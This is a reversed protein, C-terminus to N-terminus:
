VKLYGEGKAWWGLAAVAALLLILDKNKDAKELSKSLADAADYVASAFTGAPVTAGGTIGAGGLAAAKNAAATLTTGGPIKSTFFSIVGKIVTEMAQSFGSAYPNADLVPAKMIDGAIGWAQAQANNQGQANSPALTVKFFNANAGNVTDNIYWLVPYPSPGIAVVAQEYVLLAAVDQPTITYQTSGSSKWNNIKPKTNVSGAPQQYPQGSSRFLSPLHKPYWAPRQLEVDAGMPITMIDIGGGKQQMDYLWPMATANVQIYRAQLRSQLAGDVDGPPVKSWDGSGDGTDNAMLAARAWDAATVGNSRWAANKANTFDIRNYGIITQYYLLLDFVSDESYGKVSGLPWVRISGDPPRYFKPLAPPYWAPAPILTWNAPASM